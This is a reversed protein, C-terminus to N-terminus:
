KHKTVPHCIRCKYVGAAAYHLCSPPRHCTLSGPCAGGEMTQSVSDLLAPNTNAQRSLPCRAGMTGHECTFGSEAKEQHRKEQTNAALTWTALHAVPLGDVIRQIGWLQSHAACCLMPMSAALCMPQFSMCGPPGQLLCAALGVERADKAARKGPMENHARDM